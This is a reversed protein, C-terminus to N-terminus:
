KAARRNADRKSLSLRGNPDGTKRTRDNFRAYALMTRPLQGYTSKFRRRSVNGVQRISVARVVFRGSEFGRSAYKQSRREHGPLLLRRENEHYRSASVRLWFIRLVNQFRGLQQTSDVPSAVSTSQSLCISLCSTWSQRKWSGLRSSSHDLDWSVSNRARLFPQSLKEFVLCYPPACTYDFERVVPKIIPSGDPGRVRTAIDVLLM